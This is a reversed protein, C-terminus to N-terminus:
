ASESFRTIFPDFSVECRPIQRNRGFRREMLGDRLLDFWVLKEEDEVNWSQKLTQDTGIRDWQLVNEVFRGINDLITGPGNASINARLSYM